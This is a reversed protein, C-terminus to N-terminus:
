FVQLFLRFASRALHARFRLFFSNELREILQAFDQDGFDLRTRKMPECSLRTERLTEDQEPRVMERNRRGLRYGNGKSPHELALHDPGAHGSCEGVQQNGRGPMGAHQEIEVLGLRHPRVRIGALAAVLTEVFVECTFNELQLCEARM